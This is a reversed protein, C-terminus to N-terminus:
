IFSHTLSKEGGRGEGRRGEREAVWGGGKQETDGLQADKQGKIMEESIPFPHFEGSSSSLPSPLSLSIFPTLILHFPPSSFETAGWFDNLFIVNIKDGIACTNSFPFAVFPKVALKIVFM